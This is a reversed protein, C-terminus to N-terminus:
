TLSINVDQLSKIAIKVTEDVTLNPNKKLERELINTGSQEKEGASTAKYGKFHGAPDIKILQPGKESDLSFLISMVCLPRMYAQQTYMQCIEGIRQALVFVPIDYGYDNRYDGSEQRM